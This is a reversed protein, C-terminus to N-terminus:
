KIMRGSITKKTEKQEKTENIQSKLETLEEAILNIRAELEENGKIFFGEACDLLWRLTLHYDNTFQEKALRKFRNKVNESVDSIHISTEQIRKRIKIRQEESLNNEVNM